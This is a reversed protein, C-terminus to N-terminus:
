KKSLTKDVQRKVEKLSEVPVYKRWEDGFIDPFINIGKYYLSCADSFLYNDDFYDEIIPLCEKMGYAIDYFGDSMRQPLSNVKFRDLNCGISTGFIYVDGLYAGLVYDDDIFMKPHPKGSGKFKFIESWCHAIHTKPFEPHSALIALTKPHLLRM